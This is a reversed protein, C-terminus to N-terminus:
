PQGLTCGPADSDFASGAVLCPTLATVQQAYGRGRVSTVAGDSAVECPNDESCPEGDGAVHSNHVAVVQGTRPDILAAGSLGAQTRCSRTTRYRVVDRQTWGTERVTPVIAGVTCAYTTQFSGAHMVLEDGPAPGSVALPHAPVGLRRLQAYTERLRYVAADTGTMTAYLLRTTTARAVPNSDPGLLTVLHRAPRDLVADGPAPRPDVCHGNTLVMARDTSRSAAVRVVSAACGSSALSGSGAIGPTTPRPTTPITRRGSVYSRIWRRHASLDTYVSPRLGSVYNGGNVTGALVTRGGETVFVPGGSDMNDPGVDDHGVCLALQGETLGCVARSAIRTTATRLARPYSRTSEYDRLGGRGTYGWGRLLARTGPTPRRTALPVPEVPLARRLKLLAFDGDPSITRSARVFQQVGVIRGGSGVKRSGFRVRWGVPSGTLAIKVAGTGRLSPGTEVLGTCHGATIAWRPAILTAGCVHNDRRPSDVRQFSGEYPAVDAARHGDVIAQSSPAALGVLVLLAACALLAAPCARRALSTMTM